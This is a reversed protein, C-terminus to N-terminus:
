RGPASRRLPRLDYVLLADQDRLYLRGGAIVPHPRATIRGRHPPTFRGKEAYGAPSAAALVVLGNDGRLYLCGDAVAVAGKGVGRAQWRTKGTARDLCVVLGKDNTGYLSGGVCVVGGHYNALAGGRYVETATVGDGAAKLALLAGGGKKQGSASVFVTSGHVVPTCCNQLGAVGDYAWLVKGDRASVGVLSGSLFQVVCRVRGVGAVVPSAYAAKNGQAVRAKWVVAGTRRDLGALTAAPGGPTCVLLDGEVLPSEAYGMPPVVGGLDRALNKRWVPKGATSLCALEGGSSLAYVRDGQVTPTSKPGVWSGTAPRSEGLRAAWLEKGQRAADLCFLHEVGDRTGLLYVRGGAVAPTSFGPGLTTTKWLLLPGDKPWQGLLGTERSVGDRLPGRWGPWDSEVPGQPRFPAPARALLAAPALLLLLLLPTRRM